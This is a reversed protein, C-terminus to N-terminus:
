ALNSTLFLIIKQSVGTEFLRLVSKALLDLRLFKNVSQTPTSKYFLLMSNKENAVKQLSLTKPTSLVICLSPKSCTEFRIKIFISLNYFLMKTIFQFVRILMLGCYSEISKFLLASYEYRMSRTRFDM